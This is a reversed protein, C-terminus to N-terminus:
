RNADIDGVSNPFSILQTCITILEIPIIWLSKLGHIKLTTKLYGSLNRLREILLPGLNQLFDQKSWNKMILFVWNRLDMKQKFNGMKNSTTLHNHTVSVKPAIGFKHGATKLRMFLDVDELYAFFRKDLGGLELFIDTKILLCAATIGDLDTLQPDHNLKIKGQLLVQYGLNEIEGQPSHLIPSIASWQSDVATKILNTLTNQGPFVIDDNLILMWPTNVQKAGLNIAAAFGLNQKQALYTVGDAGALEQKTDTPQNDIIIM